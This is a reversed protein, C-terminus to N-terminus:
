RNPISYAIRPIKHQRHWCILIEVKQKRRESIWFYTIITIIPLPYMILVNYLTTGGFGIPCRTLSRFYAIVNKSRWVLQSPSFNLHLIIYNRTTTTANEIFLFLAARQMTTDPTRQGSPAAFGRQCKNKTRIKWFTRINAPGSGFPGSYAIWILCKAIAESTMMTDMVWWRSVAVQQMVTISITTPTTPM